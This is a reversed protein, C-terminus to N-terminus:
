HHDLKLYRLSVELEEVVNNSKNFMDLLSPITYSELDGKEGSQDDENFV